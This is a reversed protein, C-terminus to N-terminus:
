KKSKKYQSVISCKLIQSFYLFATEKKGTANPNFRMLQKQADYLMSSLVEEEDIIFPPLKTWIKRSMDSLIETARPTFKEIKQSLLIEDYFEDEKVYRM